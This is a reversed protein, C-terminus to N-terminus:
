SLIILSQANWLAPGKYISSACLGTPRELISKTIESCIPHKHAISKSNITASSYHITKKSDNEATTRVLLEAPLVSM